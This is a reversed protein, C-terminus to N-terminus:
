KITSTSQTQALMASLVQVDQQIRDMQDILTRSGKAAPATAKYASTLKPKPLMPMKVLYISGLVEPQAIVSTADAFRASGIVVKPMAPAFFDSIIQRNSLNSTISIKLIFFCAACVYTAVSLIILLSIIKKKM